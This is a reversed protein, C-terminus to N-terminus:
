PSPHRGAVFSLFLISKDIMRRGQFVSRPLATLRPLNDLDIETMLHWCVLTWRECSM